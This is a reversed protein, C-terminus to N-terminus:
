ALPVSHPRILLGTLLGTLLRTPLRTMSQVSDHQFPCNHCIMTTCLSRLVMASDFTSKYGRGEIKCLKSEINLKSPRHSDRWEDMHHM